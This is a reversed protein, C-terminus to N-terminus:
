IQGFKLKRELSHLIDCSDFEDVELFCNTESWDEYEDTYEYNDCIYM